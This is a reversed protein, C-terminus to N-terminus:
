WMSAAHGDCDCFASVSLSASLSVGLHVSESLSSVQLSLLYVTPLVDM